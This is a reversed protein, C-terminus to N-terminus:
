DVDLEAWVVKGTPAISRIGWARALLGVIRLGRGSTSATDVTPVSPQRPDKDSVEVAIGHDDLSLAVTFESRAHVVSNTALESVVLAVDENCIDWQRMTDEAFHRAAPIERSDPGFARKAEPTV